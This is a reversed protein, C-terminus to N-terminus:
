QAASHDMPGNARESRSRESPWFSSTLLHELDEHASSSVQSSSKMIFYRQPFHKALLSSTTSASDSLIEDLESIAVDAHRARSLFQLQSVIDNVTIPRSTPSIQRSGRSGGVATVVATDRRSRSAQSQRDRVWGVHIGSNRQSAVGSHDRDDEPTRVRCVLRIGPGVNERLQRGNFTMAASNLQPESEFNVFACNSQSILFVSTVGGTSPMAPPAPPPHSSHGDPRSTPHSQNFYHFLEEKTADSPVNGVWMVWQSRAAPM